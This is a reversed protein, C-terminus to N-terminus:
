VPPWSYKVGSAGRLKFEDDHGSQAISASRKPRQSLLTKIASLRVSMKRDDITIFCSAASSADQVNPRCVVLTDADKREYRLSTRPAVM